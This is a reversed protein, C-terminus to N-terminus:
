TSIIDFALVIRDENSEFPITYHHLSAPFLCLSGTVVDMVKHNINKKAEIEQDNISVILNGNNIELKPPVNIYISGSLWGNEHMHPEIKGGSKMSVLWANVKYSKPWFKIFGEKSEIFHDLYKEVELYIINKIKDLADNKKNFLIAPTQHGNIVLSQYRSSFVDEKLFNKIPKIFTNQFNYQEALDCQFVYKLPDACFPNSRKIKYKIEARSTLSGILANIEGQKIQNDLEKLFSFEDGLKYLCNLLFSKSDKLDSLKFQEIANKYQKIEFLLIGLKYHAMAHNSNVEITKEYCDKAKPYDGLEKFITGLNTHAQAYSPDIKIAKEFCSKAKKYDGTNQFILGLNNHAHAYNPDIEIAKEFFIKAKKYDATNQFILGLNNHVYVHKPDIKLVQNYLDQAQKLNNKQHNEVGLKFAEKVTFDKNKDM